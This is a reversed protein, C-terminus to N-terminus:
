YRTSPPLPPVRPAHWRRLDLAALLDSAENEFLRVRAPILDGRMYRFAALAWDGDDRGLIVTLPRPARARPNAAIRAATKIDVESPLPLGHPHSHWDGLFTEVRGSKKYVRALEKRQWRSDPHFAYEGRRARPGADILRTVVLEDARDAGEYGVLIGGTEDDGQREAAVLMRGILARPLWVTPKSM